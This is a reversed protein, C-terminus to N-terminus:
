SILYKVSFCCVFYSVSIFEFCTQDIDIIYSIVLLSIFSIFSIVLLRIIILTVLLLYTIVAM